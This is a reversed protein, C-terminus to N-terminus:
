KRKEYAELARVLVDRLSEGKLAAKAKARAYMEDPIDRILYDLASRVGSNRGKSVRDRANDAPTGLQLHDPRVCGRNDCRHLVHLGDAIPGIASEYALRHAAVVRGGISVQRYGGQSPTSPRRSPLLWCGDGRQVQAWFDDVTRVTRPRGGLLGSQRASATRADSRISGLAVAHPNKRRRKM